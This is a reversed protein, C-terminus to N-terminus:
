FVIPLFVLDLQNIVLLFKIHEKYHGHKIPQRSDFASSVAEATSPTATYEAIVKISCYNMKGNHWNYYIARLDKLKKYYIIIKERKLQQGNFWRYLKIQLVITYQHVVM